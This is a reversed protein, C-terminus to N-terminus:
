RSIKLIGYSANDVLRQYIQPANKLGFPMHSWEILGFPTIFASIERARDTMPVVWFGSAM